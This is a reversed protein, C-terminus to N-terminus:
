PAGASLQALAAAFRARDFPEAYRALRRRLAHALALVEAPRARLGAALREFDEASEFTGPSDDVWPDVLHEQRVWRPAIGLWLLVPLGLAAAEFAVSSLSSILLDAEAAAAAFSGGASVAVSIGAADFMRRYRAPEENPHPRLVFRAGAAALCRLGPLLTDIFARCFGVPMIPMDLSDTTAILVRRPAGASADGRAGAVAAEPGALATGPGAGEIGPRAMAAASGGVTAGPVGVPVIAPRPAPWARAQEATASGWGLVVDARRDAGDFERFVYIGHQMAAVRVGRAHAWEILLRSAGYAASPLVLARLSRARSLGALAAITRDLEGSVASLLRQVLLALARDLLPEEVLDLRESLRVTRVAPAQSPGYTPLLPLRRRLALLASNGHDLGPFPMVGVGLEHLQAPTLAGLALALKGAAVVAVRVRAPRSVGALTQMLPRALARQLRSGPLAPPLTYPVSAPDLGLRARVGMLLAPAAAPDAVLTGVGEAAQALTWGRLLRALELRLRPEALELLSHGDRAGAGSNHSGSLDGPPRGNLTRLLENVRHEAASRQQWDELEDYLLPSRARLDEQALTDLTVTVDGTRAPPLWAYAGTLDARSILLLRRAALARATAGRLAVDPLAAEPPEQEPLAAAGLAAALGARV